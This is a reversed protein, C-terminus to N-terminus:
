ISKFISHEIDDSKWITKYSMFQPDVKAIVNKILKLKNQINQYSTTVDEINSQSPFFSCSINTDRDFPHGVNIIAYNTLFYRDSEIDKLNNSLYIHLSIKDRFASLIKDYASKIKPEDYPNQLIIDIQFKKTFHKPLLKDIFNILYKVKSAGNFLFSDLIILSSCPHKIKEVQHIKETTLEIPFSNKLYFPTKLFNNGLYIVGNKNSYSECFEFSNNTFFSFNSNLCNNINTNFIIKKSTSVLDADILLSFVLNKFSEYVGHSESIEELKIKEDTYINSSLILSKIRLFSNRKLEVEVTNNDFPYSSLENRSDEFIKWFEYSIFVSPYM